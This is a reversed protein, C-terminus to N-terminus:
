PGPASRERSIGRRRSADIGPAFSSSASVDPGLSQARSLGEVVGRAREIRKNRIQAIKELFNWLAPVQKVLPWADDAQLQLIVCQESARVDASRVCRRKIVARDVGAARMKCINIIAVEGFCDYRRLREIECGKLSCRSEGSALWFMAGAEDGARTVFHESQVVRPQLKEAILKLVMNDVLLGKVKSVKTLFNIRDSVTELDTALHAGPVFSPRIEVHRVVAEALVQLLHQDDLSFLTRPALDGICLFGIAFKAVGRRILLPFAAYFRVGDEGLAMPNFRFRDDLSMDLVVFPNELPANLVV